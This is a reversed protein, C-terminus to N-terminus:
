TGGGVGLHGRRVVRGGQGVEVGGRAQQQSGRGEKEVDGSCGPSVGAGGEGWGQTKGERGEGPWGREWLLSVGSLATWQGGETLLLFLSDHPLPFPYLPSHASM